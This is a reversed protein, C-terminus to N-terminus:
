VLRYNGTSTGLSPPRDKVASGWDSEKAGLTLELTWGETFFEHTIWNKTWRKGNVTASQIYINKYTADFGQVVKVSATKGTAPSRVSWQRFFPATILYLNQGPNPFLGMMSFANFSGFAGSDDNGPLGSLSANFSSPIYYHVREASKGPRGAYHYAYVTLFVPENGIDALGPTEHFYDLRKVFQNDGGVTSILTAFDHPVFSRTDDACNFLFICHRSVLQVGM